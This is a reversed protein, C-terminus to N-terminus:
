GKAANEKEEARDIAITVLSPIPDKWSEMKFALSPQLMARAAAKFWKDWDFQQARARMDSVIGAYRERCGKVGWIDMNGALEDCRQCGPISLTSTLLLLECGPGWFLPDREDRSLITLGFQQDTRFTIFWDPRQKVWARVAVMLGAKGDDGTEGYYSTDHLVIWRRVKGAHKTLEQWLRAANHYTDLFLLDTEEIDVALSDSAAAGATHMKKFKGYIQAARHFRSNWEDELNYSMLTDPFGALLALTSERRKGFETAHNVESALARLRPLHENLDRPNTVAWHYLEQATELKEPPQPLMSVVRATPEVVGPEQEHEVPNAILHLWNKETMWSVEVDKGDRQETHPVVFHQYIPDLSRGLEGFELVYNRVKKYRPAFYATKRPGPRSESWAHIWRAAPLCIAKGGRARVKEHIYGEEGGFGTAHKNFGPWESKLMAFLGLGQGWVEFPEARADAARADWGWTGWMEGRWVDDLHSAGELLAEFIVPGSVIDKSGPNDAFYQLIKTYAGLAVMVHPDLVCVVRGEAVQFIMDRPASTGVPHPLGFYRAVTGANNAWGEVWAKTAKGDESDPNNHVVVLEYNFLNRQYFRIAQITDRLRDFDDYSAMGITLDLM